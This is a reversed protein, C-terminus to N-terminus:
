TVNGRFNSHLLFGLFKIAPAFSLTANNRFLYPSTYVDRLQQQPSLSDTRCPGTHCVVSLSSFSINYQQWAVHVTTFQLTMLMCLHRSLHILRAPRGDMSLSHAFLTVGLVSGQPLGNEQVYRSSCVNSLRVRFHRDQIFSSIFLPLRSRM